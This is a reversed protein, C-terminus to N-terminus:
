PWRAEHPGMFFFLTVDAGLGERYARDHPAM